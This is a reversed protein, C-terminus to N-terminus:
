HPRHGDKTAADAERQSEAAETLTGLHGGLKRLIDASARAGWLHAVVALKWSVVDTFVNMASRKQADSLLENMVAIYRRELEEDALCPVASEPKADPTPVVQEPATQSDDRVPALVRELFDKFDSM